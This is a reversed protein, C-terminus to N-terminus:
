KSELMLRMICIIDKANIKGDNNLDAAAETYEAPKDGLIARMIAIIDRANIKGDNNVDGPIYSTSPVVTISGNQVNVRVANDRGDLFNDPDDSPTVIIEFKEGPEAFEFNAVAITILATGNERIVNESSAWIWTIKEPHIRGSDHERFASNGGLGDATSYGVIDLGRCEVDFLAFCLGSQPINDAVITIEAYNTGQEVSLTPASLTMPNSIIYKVTVQEASLEKSAAKDEFLRGCRTCRFHEINGDATPTADKAPVFETSHGLAALAETKTKGCETCTYTKTGAATCTPSTTIKGSNWYNTHDHWGKVTTSTGSTANQSVTFSTSFFVTYGKTDIAGYAIYYTGAPLSSFRTENELTNFSFTKSNINSRDSGTVYNTCEPNTYVAGWVYTIPNPSSVSGSGIAFPTGQKVNIPYRINQLTIVSVSPAPTSSSGAKIYKIYSNGITQSGNNIYMWTAIYDYTLTQLLVRGGAAHYITVNSETYGTIIMSHGLDGDSAASVYNLTTSIRLVSGIPIKYDYIYKKLNAATAQRSAANVPIGNAYLINDSTNQSNTFSYGWYRNYVLNAFNWCGGGYGAGAPYDSLPLTCAAGAPVTMIAAASLLMVVALFLSIGRKATKRM